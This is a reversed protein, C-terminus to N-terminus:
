IMGNKKLIFLIIVAAILLIGSILQGLGSGQRNLILDVLNWGKSSKKLSFIGVLMLIAGVVLGIILMGTEM